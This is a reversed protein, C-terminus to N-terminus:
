LSLYPFRFAIAYNDEICNRYAKPVQLAFTCMRWRWFSCPSFPFRTRAREGAERTVYLGINADTVDISLGVFSSPM